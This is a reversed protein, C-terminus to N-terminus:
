TRDGDDDRTEELDAVANESVHTRGALALVRQGLEQRRTAHVFQVLAEATLASVSQRRNEALTKIEKGVRDPLHVTIRM